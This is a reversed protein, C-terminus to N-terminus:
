TASVPYALTRLFIVEETGRLNEQNQYSLIMSKYFFTNFTLIITPPYVRESCKDKFQRHRKKLNVIVTVFSYTLIDFVMMLWNRLVVSIAARNRRCIAGLEGKAPAAQATEM